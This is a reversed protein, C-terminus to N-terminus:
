LALLKQCVEFTARADSLASHAKENKVGFFETMERLSFKFLKPDDYLKGFAMSALDLKHYHVASDFDIGHDHGAKLLFTWDFAVNQAVFVTGNLIEKARSLGEQQTVAKGWARDHFRSIELARPLATEIHKPHLLIEHERILRLESRGRTDTHQQALVIGIEFIEHQYPDLGTTETDVFALTHDKM